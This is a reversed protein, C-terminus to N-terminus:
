SNEGTEPQGDDDQDASDDEAGADKDGPRNSIGQETGGTQEDTRAQRTAEPDAPEGARRGPNQNQSQENQNNTAM